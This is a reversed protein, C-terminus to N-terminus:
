VCHALLDALIEGDGHPERGVLHHRPADLRRVSRVQGGPQLFTADGRYMDGCAVVSGIGAAVHDRGHRHIIPRQDLIGRQYAVRDLDRDDRHALQVSRREGFGHQRVALRIEDGEAALQQRIGVPRKLRLFPAASVMWVHMAQLWPQM